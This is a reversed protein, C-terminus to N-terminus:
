FTSFGLTVLLNHRHKRELVTMVWPFVSVAM